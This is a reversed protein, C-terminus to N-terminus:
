VAIQETAQQVHQLTAHHADDTRHKTLDTAAKCLVQKVRESVQQLMSCCTADTQKSGLRETQRTCGEVPIVVSQLPTCPDSLRGPSPSRAVLISAM